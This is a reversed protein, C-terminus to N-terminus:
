RNLTVEYKTIRKSSIERSGIVQFSYFCLYPVQRTFYKQVHQLTCHYMLDTWVICATCHLHHRPPHTPVISDAASRSRVLQLYRLLILGVRIVTEVKCLLDRSETYIWCCILFCPSQHDWSACLSIPWSLCVKKKM